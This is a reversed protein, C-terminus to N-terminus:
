ILAYCVRQITLDATQKRGAKSFGLIRDELMLPKKSLGIGMPPDYAVLIMCQNSMDTNVFFLSISFSFSITDAPNCLNAYM